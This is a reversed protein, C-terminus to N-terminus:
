CRGLIAFKFLDQERFASSQPHSWADRETLVVPQFGLAWFSRLWASLIAHENSDQDNLSNDFYTHVPCKRSGASSSSSSRKEDGAFVASRPILALSCRQGAARGM